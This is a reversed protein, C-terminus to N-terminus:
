LEDDAFPLLLASPDGGVSLIEGVRETRDACCWCCCCCGGDVGCDTVEEVAEVTGVGVEERVDEELPLTLPLPPDDVGDEPM